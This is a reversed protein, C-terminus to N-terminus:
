PLLDAVTVAAGPLALPSIREDPGLAQASGHRWGFLAAGDPAPGRYVERRRDPLDVIWYDALGARTLVRVVLVLREYEVRTWKREKVDV